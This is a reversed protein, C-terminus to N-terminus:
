RFRHAAHGGAAAGPVSVPTAAAFDSLDGLLRKADDASGLMTTMAVEAQEYEAALKIGLGLGAALSGVGVLAGGAAALGGLKAGMSGVKGVFSDIPKSAKALGSTFRSINASLVVNLNAISTAM